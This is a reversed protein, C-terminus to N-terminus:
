AAAEMVHRRRLIVAVVVPAGLLSTVSNLPLAIQCGPVISVRDALMALIAGMLIVAPLLVRHDSTKLLLRCLHPVAIGLFAVPGCFATVAGALLATGAIILMRILQVNVGMSRAYGEGLLFANLPKILALALLLGAAIISVFVPMQQWTINGFSGFTWTVYSQMQHELSFQLLINVISSALYGFMLGVILLTTNSEVKHAFALVISLIAVAGVTAGVVLSSSGILSTQQMLLHWGFGESFMVVLAVGLSAGSSVGLIFPEALPNRFLTQMQLGAVGLAAGAFMATIARPLRLMFLITHWTETSTAGGLLISLVDRPPIMVSGLSLELVFCLLLAAFLFSWRALRSM